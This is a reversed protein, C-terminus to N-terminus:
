GFEGSEVSCALASFITSSAFPLSPRKVQESRSLPITPHTETDGGELHRVKSQCGGRATRAITLHKRAEDGDVMIALRAELHAVVEVKEVENGDLVDNMSVEQSRLLEISRRKGEVGEVRAERRDGAGDRAASEWCRSVRVDDVRGVRRRGVRWEEGAVPTEVLEVFVRRWLRERDGTLREEDRVAFRDREPREGSGDEVGVRSTRLPPPIRNHKGSRYSHRIRRHTLQNAPHLPLLWLLAADVAFVHSVNQSVHVEVDLPHTQRGEKTVCSSVNERTPSVLIPIRAL